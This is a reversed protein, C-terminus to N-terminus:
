KKPSGADRTTDRTEPYLSFSVTPSKNEDSVHVEVSRPVVRYGPRVIRITYFGPHPLGVAANTTVNAPDGNVFVAAGTPESRVDVTYGTAPGHERRFVLFAIVLVIVVILGNIVDSFFREGRVRESLSRSSRGRKRDSRAVVRRDCEEKTLWEYEGRHNKYRYLGRAAYFVDEEERIVRLREARLLEASSPDTAAKNQKSQQERDYDAALRNRVQKRLSDEEEPPLVGGPGPPTTEKDESVHRDGRNERERSCVCRM